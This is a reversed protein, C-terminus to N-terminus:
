CSSQGLLSIKIKKVFRHRADICPRLLPNKCYERLQTCSALENNDHVVHDPLFGPGPIGALHIVADCGGFVDVVGEYDSMDLSVDGSWADGRDVAVVEHGRAVAADVVRRGVRGAAGTIAIRM